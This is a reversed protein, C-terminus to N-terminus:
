QPRFQEREARRRNSDRQVLIGITTPILLAIGWPAEVWIPWFTGMGTAFWIVLVLLNVFVWPTWMIKVWVPVSGPDTKAARGPVRQVPLDSLIPSLEGYTKASYVQQLRSDFEHLSIRGEDMAVRLRDVIQERDKDSARMSEQGM